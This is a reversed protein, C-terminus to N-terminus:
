NSLNSSSPYSLKKINVQLLVVVADRSKLSLQISVNRLVHIHPIM